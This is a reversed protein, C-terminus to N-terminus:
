AAPCAGSGAAEVLPLPRSRSQGGAKRRAAGAGILVSAAALLSAARGSEVGGGKTTFFSGMQVLPTALCCFISVSASAGAPVPVSGVAGSCHLEHRCPRRASCM